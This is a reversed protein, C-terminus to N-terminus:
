LTTLIINPLVKQAANEDVWLQLGKTFPLSWLTHM